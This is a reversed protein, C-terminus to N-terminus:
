PASTPGFRTIFYTFFHCSTDIPIENSEASDLSNADEGTLSAPCLAASPAWSRMIFRTQQGIAVSMAPRISYMEGKPIGKPIRLLGHFFSISALTATPANIAGATAALM